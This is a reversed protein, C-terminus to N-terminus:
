SPVGADQYLVHGRQRWTIRRLKICANEINKSLQSFVFREDNSPSHIDEGKPDFCLNSRRRSVPYVSEGRLEQWIEIHPKTLHSRVWDFEKSAFDLATMVGYKTLLASTNSGIGWVKETPLKRSVATRHQQTHGHTGIAQDMQIRDKRAGENACPGALFHLGTLILIM